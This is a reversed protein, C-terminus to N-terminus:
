AFIIPRCRALLEEVAADELGAAHLMPALEVSFNQDTVVRVIMGRAQLQEAIRQAEELGGARRVVIDSFERILPAANAAAGVLVVAQRGAADELGTAAFMSLQIQLADDDAPLATRHERAFTLIPELRSEPLHDVARAYRLAAAIALSIAKPEIGAEQASLAAGFLRDDPALKRLPDKAIREVTDRLDRNGFREMLGDIYKRLDDLPFLAPYRRHLGQASEWMAQRVVAAVRPARIGEAPDAIGLAASVYALAAHGMNHILLKKERAARIDETSKLGSPVFPTERLEKADVELYYPGGGEVRIDLPNASAAAITPPVTIHVVAGVFGVYGDVYNYFELQDQGEGIFNVRTEIYNQMAEDAGALMLVARKVKKIEPQDVPLNEAFVINLTDRHAATLRRQIFRYFTQALREINNSGVSTFIWDARPGQAAVADSDLADIAWFHQVPTPQGGGVPTVTYTGQGQQERAAAFLPSSGARTTALDVLFLDFDDAALLPALYGRGINGLGGFILARKYTPTEPRGIEELGGAAPTVLFLADGQIVPSPERFFVPNKVLVAHFVPRTLPRYRLTEVMGQGKAYIIAARAWANLLESTARRLDCGSMATGTEIVAILDDIQSAGLYGMVQPEALLARLDDATMDNFHPHSKGALTVRRGQELLLQILPLDFVFEGANDVLFLVEGRPPQALASLFRTREDLRYSRASAQSVAAAMDFGDRALRDRAAVDAFDIANGLVGLTAARKFQEDQPNGERVVADMTSLVKLAVANYERKLAAMPDVPGLTERLVALAMEILENDMLTAMPRGPVVEGDTRRFLEDIAAQARGKVAPDVDARRILDDVTRKLGIATDPNDVLYTGPQYRAGLPLKILAPSAEPPQAWPALVRDVLAQATEELGGRAAMRRYRWYAVGGLLLAGVGFITMRGHHGQSWWTALGFQRELRDAMRGSREPHAPDSLEYFQGIIQHEIPISSDARLVVGYAGPRRRIEAVIAEYMDRAARAEARRLSVPGTVDATEAPPRASALAGLLFRRPAARFGRILGRREASRYDREQGRADVAVGSSGEMMRRVEPDRSQHDAVHGLREHDDTEQALEDRADMRVVQGNVRAWSLQHLLAGISFNLVAGLADVSRVHNRMGQLFAPADTWFGTTRGGFRQALRALAARNEADLAMTTSVGPEFLFAAGYASTGGRDVPTSGDVPTVMMTGSPRIGTIRFLDGRNYYVLPTPDGPVLAWDALFDARRHLMMGQAALHDVILELFVTDYAAQTYDTPVAAVGGERLWTCAYDFLERQVARLEDYHAATQGQEMSKFLETRRQEQTQWYAMFAGVRAPVVPDAVRWAPSPRRWAADYIRRAVAHQIASRRDPADAGFVHAAIGALLGAGRLFARRNLPSQAVDSIEELGSQSKAVRRYRWWAAGFFLAGVAFVATETWGRGGQGWWTAMGLSREFALALQAARAPYQFRAPQDLQALIQYDIPIPSQPRLEVGYVSPNRRITEVVTQLDQDWSVAMAAETPNRPQVTELSIAQLALTVLFGRPAVRLEPRHARRESRRYADHYRPSAVEVVVSRTMDLLATDSNQGDERHLREHESVQRRAEEFENVRTPVSGEMIWPDQANLRRVSLELAARRNKAVQGVLEPVRDMLAWFSLASAQRFFEIEDKGWAHRATIRAQIGRPDLCITGMEVRGQPRDNPPLANQGWPEIEIEEGSSGIRIVRAIDTPWHNWLAAEPTSVWINDWAMCVVGKSALFDRLTFMIVTKFNEPAYAQPVAVGQAILWTKVLDFIRQHQDRGEQSRAAIESPNYPAKSLREWERHAATWDRYFPAFTENVFREDAVSWIAPRRLWRQWHLETLPALDVRRAAIGPAVPPAAPQQAPTSVGLWFATGFLLLRTAVARPGRAVGPREELGTQPPAAPPSKLLGRQNLWLVAQDDVFHQRRNYAVVGGQRRVFEALQAQLYRTLADADNWTMREFVANAQELADVMATGGREYAGALARWPMITLVQQEASKPIPGGRLITTSWQDLVADGYDRPIKAPLRPPTSEPRAAFRDALPRHRLGLDVDIATGPPPPLLGAILPELADERQADASLKQQHARAMTALYAARLDLQYLYEWAWAEEVQWKLAAIQAPPPVREGVLRVRPNAAIMRYLAESPGPDSIPQGKRIREVVNTPQFWIAPVVIQAIEKAIAPQDLDRPVTIRKAILPFAKTLLARDMPGQEVVFIVQQYETLLTELRRILNTTQSPGHYDFDWYLRGPRNAIAPPPVPAPLTPAILTPTLRASPEPQSIPPRTAYWTTIGLVLLLGVATTIRAKTSALSKPWQRPVRGYTFPDTPTVVAEWVTRTLGRVHVKGAMRDPLTGAQFVGARERAKVIGDAMARLTAPAQPLAPRKIALRQLIAAIAEADAANINVPREELGDALARRIPSEEQGANTQRLALAPSPLALALVLAASVLRLLLPLPRTTPM